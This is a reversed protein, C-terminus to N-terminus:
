GSNPSFMDMVIKWEGDIRHWVVVYKLDQTEGDASTLKATGYDWAMDGSKSVFAATPEWSLVPGDSDVMERWAARLADSGIVPPANPPFQQANPAHAAVIWDVDGAAFRKSWERELALISEAESGSQGVAAAALGGAAVFTAFLIRTPKM